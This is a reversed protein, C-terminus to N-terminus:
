AMARAIRPIVAKLLAIFQDKVRAGTELVEEATLTAGTIGAAMNTVCSIGLFAFAPIGHLWCKRCPPCGSLTRASLVSPIFRRQHKTTLAQLLSIFGGEHLNLALKKGRGRGFRGSNRTM